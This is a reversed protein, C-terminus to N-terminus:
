IVRSTSFTALRKQSVCAYFPNLGTNNHIDITAFIGESLIKEKLPKVFMLDPHDQDEAWIRNFDFHGPIM